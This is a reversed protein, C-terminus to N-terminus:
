MLVAYGAEQLAEVARALVDNKVLIYDTDYTAIVNVAVGAAALAATFRAAIGTLSLDMTGLHLVRWSL